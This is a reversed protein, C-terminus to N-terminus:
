FEKKLVYVLIVAVAMFVFYLTQQIRETSAQQAKLLQYLWIQQTELSAGRFMQLGIDENSSAVDQEEDALSKRGTWKKFRSFLFDVVSGGLLLTILIPVAAVIGFLVHAAKKTLNSQGHTVFNAASSSMWIFISAVGIVLGIQIFKEFRSFLSLKKM